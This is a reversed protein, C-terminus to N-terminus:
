PNQYCIQLAVCITQYLCWHKFNDTMTFIVSGNCCFGKSHSLYYEYTGLISDEPLCYFSVEWSMKQYDAPFHNGQINILKSCCELLRPLHIGCPLPSSSLLGTNRKLFAFFCFFLLKGFPKICCKLPKLLLKASSSM